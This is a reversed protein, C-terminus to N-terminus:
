DNIWVEVTVTAQYKGNELVVSPDESWLSDDTVLLKVYAAGTRNWQDCVVPRTQQVDFEDTYTRVANIYETKYQSTNNEPGFSGSSNAVKTQTSMNYELTKYNGASSDVRFSTAESLRAYANTVSDAYFFRYTTGSYTNTLYSASTSETNMQISSNGIRSPSYILCVDYPIYKTKDSTTTGGKCMQGFTLKVYTTEFANGAIYWTFAAYYDNRYLYPISIEYGRISFENGSSDSLRVTIALAPVDFSLATKYATITKSVSTDVKYSSEDIASVMFVTVLCVILLILAKRM